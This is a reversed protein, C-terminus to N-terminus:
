RWARIIDATPPFASMLIEFGTRRAEHGSVPPFKVLKAVSIKVEEQGLQFMRAVGNDEQLATLNM